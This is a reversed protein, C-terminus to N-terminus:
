IVRTIIWSLNREIAMLDKIIAKKWVEGELAVEVCRSDETFIEKASMKQNEKISIDHRGQLHNGSRRKWFM